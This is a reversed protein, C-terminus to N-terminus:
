KPATTVLAITELLAAKAIPKYIVKNVFAVRRTEAQVAQEGWGTLAVVPIFPWRAKIAEALEWGSMGPMGLDTLVVDVPSAHLLQLAAAGSDAARVRHGSRTLMAELTRLLNVNDDVVLIERPVVAVPTAPERTPAKPAAAATAPLRVTVTTGESLVSTAAIRGGHARVLTDVMALGPRRNRPGPGSAVPDFLRTLMAAPVGVGTDRVTVVVTGARDDGFNPEHAASISITGGNPMTDLAHLILRTFIERLDARRGLVAPIEPIEIRVEITRGELDAEDRWRHATLHKAETVVAALDCPVCEGGPAESLFAQLQRVTEAGAIAETGLMALSERLQPDEIRVGLDEVQGMITALQNNLTFIVGSVMTTLMELQEGRATQEQLVQLQGFSANLASFLRAHELALAAQKSFQQLTAQDEPSFPGGAQDRAVEVVGLLRGRFLLPEAMVAEMRVPELVSPIPYPSAPYDNVLLGQRRQAVTGVLGEGVRRKDLLLHLLGQSGKGILVNQDDEECLYLACGAADLLAMGRRTLTTVLADPEIENAVQDGIESVAELQRTRRRLAAEAAEREALEAQLEGMLHTKELAMGLPQAFLKVTAQDDAGFDGRGASRAVFLVGFLRGDGALPEALVHEWDTHAQELPGALGGSRYTNALFGVGQAAAIGAAGTGTDVRLAAAWEGVGLTAYPTLRGTPPDWTYVIAADSRLARLLQAMVSECLSRLDAAQGATTMVERLAAFDERHSAALGEAGPAPDEAIVVLLRAPRGQWDIRACVTRVPFVSGDRRMHRARRPGCYVQDGASLGATWALLAPVDEPPRIDRLTLAAFAEPDYGYHRCAAPNAERIRLSEPDYVLLPYPAEIFLRRALTGADLPLTATSM